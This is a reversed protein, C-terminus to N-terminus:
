FETMPEKLISVPNPAAPVGGTQRVPTNTMTQSTQVWQPITTPAAVAVATRINHTGIGGGLPSVSSLLTTITNRNYQQLEDRTLSKGVPISSYVQKVIGRFWETKENYKNQFAQQILPSKNITEWLLTQNEPHVYLTM